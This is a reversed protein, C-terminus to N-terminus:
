RHVHGGAVAQDAPYSELADDVLYGSALLGVVVLLLHHRM